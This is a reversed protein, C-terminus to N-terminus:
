RGGLDRAMQLDRQASARRESQRAFARLDHWPVDLIPIMHRTLVTALPVNAGRMRQFIERGEGQVIIWCDGYLPEAEREVEAGFEADSLSLVARQDRGVDQVASFWTQRWDRIDGASKQAGLKQFMDRAGMALMQDVYLAVGEHVCPPLGAAGGPLGAAAAAFMWHTVEHPYVIELGEDLQKAGFMRKMGPTNQVEHISAELTGKQPAVGEAAAPKPVSDTDDLPDPLGNLLAWAENRTTERENELVHITNEDRMYLGRAGRDVRTGVARAYSAASNHVVVILPGDGDSFTPALGFSSELVSSVVPLEPIMSYWVYFLTDDLALSKLPEANFQTMLERTAPDTIADVADTFRKRAADVGVQSNPSLMSRLPNPPLINTKLVIRAGAPGRVTVERWPQKPDGGRGELATRWLFSASLRWSLESVSALLVIEDAKSGASASPRDGKASSAAKAQVQRWFDAARQTAAAIKPDGVQDISLGGGKWFRALRRATRAPAEPSMPEMALTLDTWLASKRSIDGSGDLVEAARALRCGSFLASWFPAFAMTLVIEAVIWIRRKHPSEAWAALGGFLVLAPLALLWRHTGVSAVMSDAVTMAPRDLWDMGVWRMLRAPWHAVGALFGITASIRPGFLYAVFGAAVTFWYGTRLM